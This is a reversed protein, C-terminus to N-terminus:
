SRTTRLFEGQGIELSLPQVAVTKEFTKTLEEIIVFSM